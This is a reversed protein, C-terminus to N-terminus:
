VEKIYGEAKAHALLEAMEGLGTRGARVFGCLADALRMLADAQEKRVGRVKDTRIRLERLAKGFWRTQSKPLGDVFVTAKYEDEACDTIARATARVTLTLYGTANRYFAYFLYGRLAPLSLIGRIYEVRSKDRTLVWKRRGKGTAREIEELQRRLHDREERAIVVAVLFFDGLTDQGTEDVFCYLKQM